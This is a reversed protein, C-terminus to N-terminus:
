DQKPFSHSENFKLESVIKKVVGEIDLDSTDITLDAAAQYLPLRRKLLGDMASAPDVVQLLPRREPSNLVRRLLISPAASLYVIVANRKLIEVNSRDLVVGGGCAIVTNVSAAIESVADSEIRRFAAEGGSSFIQSISRGTKQRILSDLDVFDMGVASALARGVASKGAGMFGILAVNNKM